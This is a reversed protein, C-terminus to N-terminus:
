GHEFGRRQMPRVAADADREYLEDGDIVEGVITLGCPLPQDRALAEAVAPAAAILLEFDEGDELAHDIPSRGSNHSTDIAAQSLPLSALDVIAGVGSAQCMRRLDLALGDSLDMAARIEAFAALALAENVRPTFDLHHGALSGGLRGTVLLRDGPRAADRLWAEGPAVTGLVTISVVLPGDTANTDGGALPCGLAEALPLMGEILGRALEGSSASRPMNLSVFAALPQAAMAALDSLNVALAKRGIRQTTHQALDFHVQDALMDTTVVLQRGEPVEVLAADDGIGLAVGPAKGLTQGLWRVFDLEM